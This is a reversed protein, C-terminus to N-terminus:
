YELMEKREAKCLVSEEISTMIMNSVITAPTMRLAASCSPCATPDGNIDDSIAALPVCGADSSSSACGHGSALQFKAHVWAHDNVTLSSNANTGLGLNLNPDVYVADALHCM